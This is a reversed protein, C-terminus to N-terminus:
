RYCYLVHKTQNYKFTPKCDSDGKTESHLSCHIHTNHTATFWLGDIVCYTRLLISNAEVETKCYDKVNERDKIFLAVTCLMSSIM